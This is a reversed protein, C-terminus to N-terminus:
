FWEKKGSMQAIQAASKLTAMDVMEDNCNTFHKSLMPFVIKGLLIASCLSIMTFTSFTIMLGSFLANGVNVYRIVLGASSASHIEWEGWREVLAAYNQELETGTFNDTDLLELIEVVNGVSNKV